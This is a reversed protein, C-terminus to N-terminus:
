MNCRVELNAQIEVAKAGLKECEAVVEDAEAKNHVYHIVCNYGKKAFELIEARGM